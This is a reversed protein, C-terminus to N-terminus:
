AFRFITFGLIVQAPTGNIPIVDDANFQTPPQQHQSFEDGNGASLSVLVGAGGQLGAFRGAHALSSSTPSSPTQPRAAAVSAAAAAAPSLLSSSSASTLDPSLLSSSSSANLNHPAFVSTSSPHYIPRLVLSGDGNDSYHNVNNNGNFPDIASGGFLSDQNSALSHTPSARNSLGGFGVRKGGASAASPSVSSKHFGMASTKGSTSAHLESPSATSFAQLTPQPLPVSSALAPQTTSLRFILRFRQRPLLALVSNRALQTRKSHEARTIESLQSADM